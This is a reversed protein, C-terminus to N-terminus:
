RRMAAVWAIVVRRANDPPQKAEKPPMEGASLKELVLNWHPYDRVVEAVHSYSKLNFQAAPASGSHCVVCYSTLFPRVTQTFSRELDIDARGAAYTWPNTIAALLLLGAATIACRQM